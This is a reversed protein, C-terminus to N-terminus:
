QSMKAAKFRSIRIPNGEEDIPEFELEQETKRYGTKNQEFVIKQRLKHYNSAVELNFIEQDITDEVSLALDEADVEFDNEIIEDVLIPGDDEEQDDIYNQNLYSENEEEEDEDDYQREILDLRPDFAENKSKKDILNNKTQSRVKSAEEVVPMSELMKNLVEFDKLENVVPGETDIDDDYMGLVYAKAMTEMDSQLSQFDVIAEKVEIELEKNNPSLNAKTAKQDTQQGTTENSSNQEFSLGLKETIVQELDIDQLQDVKSKLTNEFSTVISGLPIENEVIDGNITNNLYSVSPDTNVEKIKDEKKESNNQIKSMKFRSVKHPKTKIKDENELISQQVLNYRDLPEVNSSDAIPIEIKKFDKSDFVKLNSSLNFKQTIVTPENREVVLNSVPSQEVGDISDQNFTANGGAIRGQKFLSLKATEQPEKLYGSINEVEKIDLQEAFRVSKKSSETDTTNVKTQTSGFEKKDKSDLEAKELRMKMVQSWLKSNLDKNQDGIMFSKSEGYLLDDALDDEDEDEGEDSFEFDWEEDDAFDSASQGSQEFEDVLIELELIEDQDLSIQNSNSIRASKEEDQDIKDEHELNKEVITNALVVHESRKGVSEPLLTTSQLIEKDKPKDKSNENDNNPQSNRYADICIQKLRFKDDPSIKLSDIKDLLADQSLNEPIKNMSRSSIEMDDFLQALEENDHQPEILDIKQNDWPGDIDEQILEISNSGTLISVTRGLKDKKDVSEKPATATIEQNPVILQEQDVEQNNIRAKLISGDEDLHEEIEMFPLGEENLEVKNNTSEFNGNTFTQFKKLNERTILAEKVKASFTNCSNELDSIRCELYELAQSKSKEVFYGGGIAITFTHHNKDNKIEKLIGLLVDVQTKIVEKKEELNHITRDLQSDLANTYEIDLSLESSNM